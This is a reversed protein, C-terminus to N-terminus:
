KLYPILNEYYKSSVGWEKCDQIEDEIDTQTALTLYFPQGAQFPYVCITDNEYLSLCHKKNKEKGVILNKWRVNFDLKRDGSTKEVWDIKIQKPTETVWYFERETKEYFLRKM